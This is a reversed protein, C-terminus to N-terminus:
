EKKMESVVLNASKSGKFIKWILTKELHGQLGSSKGPNCLDRGQNGVKLQGEVYGLTILVFGLDLGMMNSYLARLLWSIPNM